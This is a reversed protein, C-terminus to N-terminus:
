FRIKFHRGELFESRFLVIGFYFIDITARVSEHMKIERWAEEMEESWHIDDFILISNNGCLPLIQHFYRLTPEKRHNGDVFVFDPTGCKQLVKDLTDDFNGRVLEVNRLDLKNFNERALNAIEEAGEMTVVKSVVNAKALYATTIGLSTGLEIVTSPKYFKVMRFLLQAVRPPKAASKAISGVQRSNTKGTVSGAGLDNVAIRTKDSLLQKRLNEIEEYEQYKTKDNMVKTIFEFVFPSHM